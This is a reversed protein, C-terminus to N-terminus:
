TVKNDFTAHIPKLKPTSITNTDKLSPILMNGLGQIKKGISGRDKEMDQIKINGITQQQHKYEKKRANCVLTEPVLVCGEFPSETHIFAM